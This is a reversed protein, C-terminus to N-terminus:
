KRHASAYSHPACFEQEQTSSCLTCGWTFNGSGNQFRKRVTPGDDLSKVKSNDNKKCVDRQHPASACVDCTRSRVCAPKESCLSCTLTDFFWGMGDDANTKREIDSETDNRTGAQFHVSLDNLISLESAFSTAHKLQHNLKNGYVLDHSRRLFKHRQM